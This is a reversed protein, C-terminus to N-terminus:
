MRHHITSEFWEETKKFKEENKYDGLTLKLTCPYEQLFQEVTLYRLSSRHYSALEPSDFNYAFERTLGSIDDDDYDKEVYVEREFDPLQGSLLSEIFPVYRMGM